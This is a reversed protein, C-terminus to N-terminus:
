SWDFAFAYSQPNNERLAEPVDTATDGFEEDIRQAARERAAAVVREAEQMEEAYIAACRDWFYLNDRTLDARHFETAAEIVEDDTMSAWDFRDREGHPFAHFITNNRGMAFLEQWDNVMCLADAKILDLNFKLQEYRAKIASRTKESPPLTPRNNQFAFRRKLRIVKAHGDPKAPKPAPDPQLHLIRATM